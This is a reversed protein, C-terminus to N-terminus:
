FNPTIDHFCSSHLWHQFSCLCLCLELFMIPYTSSIPPITTKESYDNDFRSSMFFELSVRQLKYLARIDNAIHCDVFYQFRISIKSLYSLPISDLYLSLYCLLTIHFFKNTYSDARILTFNSRRIHKCKLQVRPAWSSIGPVRSKQMGSTESRPQILEAVANRDLLSGVGSTKLDVSKIVTMM